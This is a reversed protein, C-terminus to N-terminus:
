KSEHVRICSLPHWISMCSHHGLLFEKFSWLTLWFHQWFEIWALFYSNPILDRRCSQSIGQLDCGWNMFFSSFTSIGFLIEGATLSPCHFHLTREDHTFILILAPAIDLVKCFWSIWGDWSQSIWSNVELARLFQYLLRWLIKVHNMLFRTCPDLMCRM